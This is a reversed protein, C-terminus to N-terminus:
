VLKQYIQLTKEAMKEFSFLPNFTVPSFSGKHLSFSRIAETISREDLPDFHMYEHDLIEHFVPIDSAIVPLKFYLADLLPLGFGESVSPHILASAHKYLYVLEGNSTNHHFRIRGTLGNNKVYESLKDSFADKPGILFLAHDTKVQSFAKILREVNKHPYFNGVYLFFPNEVKKGIGSDEKSAILERNLGEYIVETKTKVHDGYLLSLEKKVYQSPVIIASAHRVQSSLVYKFVQYKLEYVIPNRTSAKGTKHVLPTVDHVTAVFPRNYFVPYGFYTFHMLDINHSWLDRLFLTQESLSHWHYDALIPKFQPNKFHVSAFDEKKLFILICFDGNIKKELEYLLNRLYTGVGTQSYLRADIGIKKM